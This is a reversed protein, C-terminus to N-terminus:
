GRKNLIMEGYEMTGNEFHNKEGGGQLASKSFRWGVKFLIYLIPTSSEFHSCSHTLYYVPGQPITKSVQYSKNSSIHSYPMEMTFSSSLYTLLIRMSVVRKHLGRLITLTPTHYEFFISQCQPHIRFNLLPSPPYFSVHTCGCVFLIIRVYIRKKHSM